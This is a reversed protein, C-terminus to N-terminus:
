KVSLFKSSKTAGIGPGSHIVRKRTLSFEGLYRGVMEPTIKVVNWEKGNYIAFTHDVFEPLIILNREHTRIPEKARGNRIDEIIKKHEPKLGRKLSRRQRAPVIKMFEELSMKKLEDITYGYYTFVRAM